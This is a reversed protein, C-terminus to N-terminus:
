HNFRMKTTSNKQTTNRAKRLVRYHLSLYGHSLNGLSKHFLTLHNYLRRISVNKMNLNRNPLNQTNSVLIQNTGRNLTSLNREPHNQTHSDPTQNTSQDLIASLRNQTHSDPTRNTYQIVLASLNRNPHNWTHNSFILNISQSLHHQISNHNNSETTRRLLSRQLAM